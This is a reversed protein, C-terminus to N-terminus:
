DDDLFQFNYFVKQVDDNDELTDILKITKILNEQDLNLNNIARWELGAIDPEGFIKALDDKIKHFDEQKCIIECYDDEEIFDDLGLEIAFILLDDKSQLKDKNYIIFGLKKFLYSVSGIEGLHGCNKGFITKIDSATRNRNDTLCEVIFATGAPGYGEYRIEEYNENSDNSSAKSVAAEIKDKPMNEARAALIASRLRPNFLANAGGTKVAVTIERIVKTFINSRKADQAGKKHKIKKFKSHGAM